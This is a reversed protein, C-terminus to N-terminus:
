EEGVSGVEVGDALNESVSIDAGCLYICFDYVALSDFGDIVDGWELLCM